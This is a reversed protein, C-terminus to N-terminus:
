SVPFRDKLIKMALNFFNLCLKLFEIRPPGHSLSFGLVPLGQAREQLPPGEHHLTHAQHVGVDGDLAGELRRLQGAQGGLILDKDGGKQAAM